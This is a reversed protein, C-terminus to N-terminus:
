GEYFKLNQNLSPQKQSVVNIKQKVKYSSQIVNFFQKLNHEKKSNWLPKMGLLIRMQMDTQTYIWFRRGAHVGFM